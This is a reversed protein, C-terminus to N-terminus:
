RLPALRVENALCYVSKPSCPEVLVASPPSASLGEPDQPSREGQSCGDQAKEKESTTFDQSSLTAFTIQGAYAYLFVAGWSCRSILWDYQWRLLHSVDEGGRVEVSTRAGDTLGYCYSKRPCQLSLVLDTTIFQSPILSCSRVLTASQPARRTLIKTM